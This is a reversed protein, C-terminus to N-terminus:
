NGWTLKDRKPKSIKGMVWHELVQLRHIIILHKFNSNKGLYHVQEMGSNFTNQLGTWSLM